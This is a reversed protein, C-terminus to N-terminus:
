IIETGVENSLAAFDIDLYPIDDQLRARRGAMFRGVWSDHDKPDYQRHVMAYLGIELLKLFDPLRSIWYLDLSYEDSYSLFFSKLFNRAFADGEPRSNLVTSDLLLMAIDMIYWGHACDDFDIITVKQTALDVMFNAFHLDTHILGYSDNDKPLSQVISRIEHQKQALWGHNEDLKESPNFCNTIGDWAPRLLNARVPHYDHSIAHMRGVAHGLAATLNDNWHGPFLDEALTGDVKMFAVLVYTEHNIQVSEILSGRRSCLPTPVSAGQAALYKLWHLVARMAPRDIEANPPTVRLIFSEGDKPFEYIMSFHGGSLPEAQAASFGYRKGAQTLIISPEIM